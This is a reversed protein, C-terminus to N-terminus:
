CGIKCEAIADNMKKSAIMPEKDEMIASILAIGFCGTKMVKAVMSTKIGGLAYVPISLKKVVDALLIIGVPQGYKRKSPTDFVPGFTVFDAGAHEAQLAEEISHASYGIKKTKGLLTRAASVPISSLGLHVGDAGVALAIDIRDNIILMAQFKTTLTRLELALEFFARSSLDKERLQVMRVGGVLAQEVVISLRGETTQTRDTIFYLPFAM